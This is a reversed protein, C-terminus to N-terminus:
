TRLVPRYARFWRNVKELDRLCARLEDRSCPEDMLEPLQAPEARRRFDLRM